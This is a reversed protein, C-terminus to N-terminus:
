IKLGLYYRELFEDFNKSLYNGTKNEAELRKWLKEMALEFAKYHNPWRTKHMILKTKNKRNIFPCIVCGIRDFGEDYLKCYPLNNTEIYDWIEWELWLFIPKYIRQKNPHRTWDIMPRKARGVSEEARIGLLRNKLPINKSPIKKLHDCCWRRKRTPFGKKDIQAFFSKEPYLWKVSPYQTNIFRCVEPPDIGTASYFPFFRVGSKVALDYLVVSDKGGSFGLFYGESPEHEQLFTIALEEKNQGTFIDLQQLGRM